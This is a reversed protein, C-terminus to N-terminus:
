LKGNEKWERYKQYSVIQYLASEKDFIEVKAKKVLNPLKSEIMAINEIDFIVDGAQKTGIGSNVLDVGRLDAKRLDMYSLNLVFEM